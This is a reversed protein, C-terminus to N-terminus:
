RVSPPNEWQNRNEPHLQKELNSFIIDRVYTGDTQDKSLIM